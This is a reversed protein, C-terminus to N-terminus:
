RTGYLSVNPRHAWPESFYWLEVSELVRPEGTLDIISRGEPAIRAGIAREDSTGNVYNLVVRQCFIADGTVRLQVARFEGQRGGVQIKDHDKTAGIHANGLFRWVLGHACLSKNFTFALFVALTCVFGRRLM